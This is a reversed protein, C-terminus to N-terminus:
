ATPGHHFLFRCRCRIGIQSDTVFARMGSSMMSGRDACAQCWLAEVLGRRQLFKKYDRLLKAEEVTLIEATVQLPEGKGDVIVAPEKDLVGM